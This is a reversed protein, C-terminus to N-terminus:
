QYVRAIAPCVAGTASRTIGIMSKAAANIDNCGGADIAAAAENTMVSMAATSSLLAIVVNRFMVMSHVIDLSPTAIIMRANTFANEPINTGNGSNGSHDCGTIFRKGNLPIM